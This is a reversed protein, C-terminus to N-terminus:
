CSKQPGKGIAAMVGESVERCTAYSQFCCTNNPYQYKIGKTPLILRDNKPKYDLIEGLDEWKLDM